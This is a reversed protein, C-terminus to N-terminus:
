RKGIANETGREIADIIDTYDAGRLKAKFAEIVGYKISGVLGDAYGSFEHIFADRVGNRIADLIEEKSPENKM